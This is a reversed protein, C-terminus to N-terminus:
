SGLLCSRFSRHSSSAFAALSEPFASGLPVPLHQPVVDLADGLGGDPAQSSTSADLPDRPKDVLLGPAHQLHEQLVDDPVSDGVGLVGLPLSDGGHVNDVSELPLPASEVAESASGEWGRWPASALCVWGARKLAVLGKRLLIHRAKGVTKMILKGLKSIHRLSPLYKCRYHTKTFTQHIKIM